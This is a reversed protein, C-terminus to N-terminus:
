ICEISMNVGVSRIISKEAAVKFRQFPYCPINRVINVSQFRDQPVTGTLDKDLSAQLVQEMELELIPVHYKSMRGNKTELDINIGLYKNPAHHVLSCFYEAAPVVIRFFKEMWLTSGYYPNFEGVNDDIELDWAPDQDTLEVLTERDIMYMRGMFNEQFHLFLTGDYKIVDFYKSRYGVFNIVQDRHYLDNLRSHPTISINSMLRSPIGEFDGFGPYMATARLYRRWKNFYIVHHLKVHADDEQSIFLDYHRANISFLKRHQFQLTGATGFNKGSLAQRPFSEDKINLQTPFDIDCALSSLKGFSRHPSTLIATINDAAGELGEYTVLAIDVRFGSCSVNAYSSIQDLLYGWRSKNWEPEGWLGTIAVYIRQGPQSVGTRFVRKEFNIKRMSAYIPSIGLYLLILSFPVYLFALNQCVKLHAGSCM